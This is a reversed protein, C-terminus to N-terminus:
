NNEEGYKRKEKRLEKACMGVALRIANNYTFSRFEKKLFELDELFEGEVRISLSRYDKTNTNTNEIM